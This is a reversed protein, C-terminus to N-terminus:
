KLSTFLQSKLNTINKSSQKKCVTGELCAAPLHFTEEEYLGTGPLQEGNETNKLFFVVVHNDYHLSEFPNQLHPSIDSM